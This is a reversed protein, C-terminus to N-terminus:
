ALGELLVNAEILDATDFGETFWDYVAALLDYAEHRRDQSQRFCNAAPVVHATSKQLLLDGKLRHVEAKWWDEGTREM